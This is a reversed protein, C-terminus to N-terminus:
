RTRNGIHEALVHLELDLADVPQIEVDEDGLQLAGALYGAEQAAGRTGSRRSRV